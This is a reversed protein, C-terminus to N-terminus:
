PLGPQSTATSATARVGPGAFTPKVPTGTTHEHIFDLGAISDESTKSLDDMIKARLGGIEGIASGPSGPPGFFLGSANVLNQMASALYVSVGKGDQDIRIGNADMSGFVVTTNTGARGAGITGSIEMTPSDLATRAYAPVNGPRKKGGGPTPHQSPHLPDIEPHDHVYALAAQIDDLTQNADTKAKADFGGSLGDPTEDLAAVVRALYAQAAQLHSTTSTGMDIDVVIQLAQGPVTAPGRPIASPPLIRGGNAAVTIGMATRFATVQIDKLVKERFGGIDGGPAKRLDDLAAGLSDLAQSLRAAARPHDHGVQVLSAIDDSVAAKPAPLQAIEPHAKAFDMAVSIDALASAADTRAKVDYGGKNNGTAANLSDSAAQLDGQCAPLQDMIGQAADAPATSPGGGPAAPVHVLFIFMVAAAGLATVRQKQTM